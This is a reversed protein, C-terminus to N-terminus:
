YNGLSPVPVTPERKLLSKFKSRLKKLKPNINAQCYESDLNKGYYDNHYDEAKYFITLPAVQTLIPKFFIKDNKLEEFFNQAISKQEETTYFVVSRYQDGVDAGQRNFSTPDHVIVFIALLDLYSVINPDYEFRIVEAHGTKGQCIQKYTPDKTEGGTYGVMINSVGKVEKMVSDICWFCGAGFIAINM